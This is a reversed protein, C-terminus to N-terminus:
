IHIANLFTQVNQEDYHYENWIGYRLTHREVYDHMVKLTDTVIRASIGKPRYNMGVRDMFNQMDQWPQQQMYATILIGLGVLEGHIAHPLRSEIAYAFFHEGGEEPRSNGYCNCLEVEMSLANLIAIFGEPTKASITEAHEFLYNVIAKSTQAVSKIYLEDSLLKGNDHAYKWDSVATVISLVDGCGSVHYAYPAQRLLDMDLLVLDPKKSQVYKVCGEIRVGTSDVLFADTSIITPIAILEKDWRRALLKAIDIARGGGVAFVIEITDSPYQLMTDVTKQTEDAVHLRDVINFGSSVANFQLEATHTTVLLIRRPDALGNLSGSWIPPLTRQNEILSHLELELNGAM